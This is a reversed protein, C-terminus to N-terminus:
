RELPVQDNSPASSVRRANRGRRLRRRERVLQADAARNSKELVNGAQPQHLLAPAIERPLALFEVVGCERSQGAFRRRKAREDVRSVCDNWVGPSMGRFIASNARSSWGIGRRIAQGTRAIHRSLRARAYRSLTPSAPISERDATRTSERRRRRRCSRAQQALHRGIRGPPADDDARVLRRRSPLASTCAM